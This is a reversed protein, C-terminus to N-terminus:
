YEVIIVRVLTDVRSYHIDYPRPTTTYWACADIPQTICELYTCISSCSSARQTRSLRGRHRARHQNSGSVPITRRQEAVAEHALRGGRAASSSSGAAAPCSGPLRGVRGGAARQQRQQQLESGGSGSGNSRTATGTSVSGPAPATSRRLVRRTAHVEAQDLDGCRGGGVLRPGDVVVLFIDGM